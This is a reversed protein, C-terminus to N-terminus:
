RSLAKKQKRRPTLRKLIFKVASRALIFGLLAAIVAYPFFQGLTFFYMVALHATVAALAVAVDAPVAFALGWKKRLPSFAGEAIGCLVGAAFCLLFIGLTM